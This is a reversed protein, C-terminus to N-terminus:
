DGFGSKGRDLVLGLRIRDHCCIRGSLCKGKVRSVYVEQGWVVRSSQKDVEKRAEVVGRM